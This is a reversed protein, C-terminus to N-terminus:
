QAWGRNWVAEAGDFVLHALCGVVACVEVLDVVLAFTLRDLRNTRTECHVTDVGRQAPICGVFDWYTRQDFAPQGGFLEVLSYM